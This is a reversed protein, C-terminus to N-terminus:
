RTLSLSLALSLSRWRATTGSVRLRLTAHGDTAAAAAAAGTATSFLGFLGYRAPAVHRGIAALRSLAVAATSSTSSTTTTTTTTTTTKAASHLWSLQSAARLTPGGANPLTISFSASPSPLPSPLAATHAVAAPSSSRSSATATAGVAHLLRSVLFQRSMVLQPSPALFASHSDLTPPLLPAPRHSAIRHPAIRHPRPSSAFFHFLLVDAATDDDPQSFTHICLLPLSVLPSRPIAACPLPLSSAPESARTRDPPPDFARALCCLACAPQRV